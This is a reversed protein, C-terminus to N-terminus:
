SVYEGKIECCRQLRGPFSLVFSDIEDQSISDFEERVYRALDEKGWPGRNAVRKALVAWLGEIPNLDPSRAPWGSLTDVKHKKLEAAVAPTWHARAGDMMLLSGQLAKRTPRLVQDIFIEGTMGRSDTLDIIQLVKKGVAIGGWVFVKAADQAQERSRVDGRKRAWQYVDGNDCSDFWKEDTFMIRMFFKLPRDVYDKCFRLRRAVDAELLLTRKPRRYCKLGSAQLDRRVTTASVAFDTSLNLERAIAAPSPFESKRVRRTQVTRPRQTGDKRPRGRALVTKSAVIVKTRLALAVVRVRRAQIKRRFATKGTKTASARRLSPKVSKESVARRVTSRSCDSLRSIESINLGLGAMTRMQAWGADDVTHLRGLRLFM